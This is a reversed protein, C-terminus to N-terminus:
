DRLFLVTAIVVAFLTKLSFLVTFKSAEIRALASFIAVNGLAYLVAMVLVSPFIQSFNPIEIKGKTILIILSAVFAVCLQFYISFSISEVKEHKLIMRQMLVSVSTFLVSIALLLQWAM